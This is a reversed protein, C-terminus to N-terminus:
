EDSPMETLSDERKGKRESNYVCLCVSLCICVDQLATHFPTSLACLVLCLARSVVRHCM